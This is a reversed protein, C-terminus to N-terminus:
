SEHDEIKKLVSSDIVYNADKVLAMIEDKGNRRATWIINAITYYKGTTTCYVRDGIRLPKGDADTMKDLWIHSNLSGNIVWEVARQFQEEDIDKTETCSRGNIVSMRFGHKKGHRDIYGVCVDAPKIDEDWWVAKEVPHKMAGDIFLADGEKEEPIASYYEEELKDFFANGWYVDPLKDKIKRIFEETM